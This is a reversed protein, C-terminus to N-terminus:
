VYIQIICVNFISYVYMGWIPITILPVGHCLAEQTSPRGCQTVFGKIKPHALIDHQPFWSQMWVNGPKDAPVKGTWRWLFQLKPFSKFAEFFTNRLELPMNSAIVSSGLSVYVFGDIDRQEVFQTLEKPLPKRTKIKDRSCWLGSYSVFYPPLSLPFDEVFNINALVLSTNREFERLDPLGGSINMREEILAKVKPLYMYEHGFRWLLPEITSKIRGVLDMEYTKPPVGFFSITSPITASEPVIGYTDWHHPVIAPMFTIHKSKFKYLVGYICEGMSSDIMFLDYHLNERNLWNIIEPSDFFAQCLDVCLDFAKRYFVHLTHNLKM